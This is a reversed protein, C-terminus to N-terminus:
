YDDEGDRLDNSGCEPCEDEPSGMANCEIDTFEYGCDNCIYNFHSAIKKILRKLSAMPVLLEDEDILNDYIPDQNKPSKIMTHYAKNEAKLGPLAANATDFAGNDKMIEEEHIFNDGSKYDDRMEPPLRKDDTKLWYLHKDIADEVWSHNVNFLLGINKVM